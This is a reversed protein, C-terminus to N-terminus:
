LSSFDSVRLLLNRVPDMGKILIESDTLFRIRSVRANRPSLAGSILSM